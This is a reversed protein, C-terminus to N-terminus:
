IYDSVTDWTADYPYKYYYRPVFWHIGCVVAVPDYEWTATVDNASATVSQVELM